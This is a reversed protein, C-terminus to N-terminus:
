VAVGSLALAEKLRPAGPEQKVSGGLSPDGCAAVAQGAAPVSENMLAIGRGLIAKAANTDANDTHGCMTCSFEAQTKRNDKHTHGCRSCEQSSFAPEVKIKASGYWLCKYDLLRDVLGWGSELIAKNLAAKQAVGSGPDNETGKASRTMNRVRLDEVVVAGCSKALITTAKHCTDHRRRARQAHIAAIRQKTKKQNRSGRGQRERRRELRLLREDKKATRKSLDFFRGDSTALAHVVGRDVGVAPGGNPKECRDPVEVQIAVHWMGGQCTVTAHKIKGGLAKSRRYKVWGLGQLKVEAWKRNLKKAQVHQPSRFSENAWKAKFRPYPALRKFFRSYAADLDRLAQQLIQIPIERLWPALEPDNRLEKLDACQRGYGVSSGTVRWALQRQELGLNFVFRRAGCFRRMKRDQSASPYLRYRRGVFM